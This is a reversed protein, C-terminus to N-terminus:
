DNLEGIQVTKKKRKLYWTLSGVHVMYIIALTVRMMLNDVFICPILFVIFMVVFMKLLNITSINKQILQNEVYKQYSPSQIFTTHSKESSRIWFFGTLLYFVTTPLFPLFIGVTGLGFSVGGLGIYLWKKM